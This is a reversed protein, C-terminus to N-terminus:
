RAPPPPGNFGCVEWTVTGGALNSTTGDGLPFSAQFFLVLDYAGTLQPPGPREYWFSNVVANRLAFPSMVDSGNGPRGLAVSLTGSPTSAFQTSEYVVVHSFRFSGPLATLVPVEQSSSKATLAAADVRGCRCSFSPRSPAARRLQIQPAIGPSTLRDATGVPTKVNAAATAPQDNLSACEVAQSQAGAIAACVLLPMIRMVLVPKATM